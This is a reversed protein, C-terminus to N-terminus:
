NTQIKKSENNKLCIVIMNMTNVDKTNELLVKKLSNKVWNDRKLQNSQM